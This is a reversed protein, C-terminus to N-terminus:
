AKAIAAPQWRWDAAAQARELDDFGRHYRMVAYAVYDVMAETLAPGRMRVIPVNPLAAEALLGDVGAGLSFM